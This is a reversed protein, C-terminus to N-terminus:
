RVREYDVTSPFHQRFFTVASIRASLSRLVMLVSRGIKMTGEFVM